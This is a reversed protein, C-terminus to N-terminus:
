SIPVLTMQPAIIAISFLPVNSDPTVGKYNTNM